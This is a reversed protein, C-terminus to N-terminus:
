VFSDNRSWAALQIAARLLSPERYTSAVKGQPVSLPFKIVLRGTGRNSGWLLLEHAGWSVEGIDIDVKTDKNPDYALTTHPKFDPFKNDFYLDHARFAEVLESRFAHLEPSQVEAIVPVGNDGAPFSSIHDTKVSFPATRSTVEHIVPLMAGIDEVPVDSGLYMMTIHMTAMDEPQGPVEIEHLVRATESPLQIMLAAM